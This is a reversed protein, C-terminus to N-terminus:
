VGKLVVSAWANSDQEVSGGRSSLSFHQPQGGTRHIRYSLGIRDIAKPDYGYLVASPLGITVHFDKKSFETEVFILDPDSQPHSDEARFRSMEQAQIEGVKQPLVLFHHCFKTPFGADKRDRTDIFLEIAEGKTFDPFYCGEFLKRFQIRFSLAEADFRFYVDAFRDEGLLKSTDPLLTEKGQLAELTLSFFHLPLLAPLTEWLGSM